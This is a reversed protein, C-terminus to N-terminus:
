ASLSPCCFVLCLWSSSVQAIIEGKLLMHQLLEVSELDVERGQLICDALELLSTTNLTRGVVGECPPCTPM